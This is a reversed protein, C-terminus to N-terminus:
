SCSRSLMIRRGRICTGSPVTSGRFPQNEGRDCIIAIIDQKELEVTQRVRASFSYEEEDQAEDM